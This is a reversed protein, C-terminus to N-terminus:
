WLCDKRVTVIPLLRSGDRIEALFCVTNIEPRWAPIIMYIMRPRGMRPMTFRIINKNRRFIFTSPMVAM